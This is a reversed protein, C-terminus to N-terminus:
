EFISKLITNIVRPVSIKRDFKPNTIKDYIHVTLTQLVDQAIPPVIGSTMDVVITLDCIQDFDVWGQGLLVITPSKMRLNDTMIKRDKVTFNGEVDTIMLQGLRLAENLVDLLGKFIKFETLFGERIALSGKAELGKIDSLMGKSLMTMYFKGNIEEAKLNPIDNKLKHLDLGDINLALDFPIGAGNLDGSGVAHLKGDYVNADATLNSITGERQGVTIHLDNATYGLISVSASQLTADTTWRKWDPVPGKIAANVNLTGSPKLAEFAKKQEEPLLVAVDELRFTMTTNINLVPPDAPSLVANGSAGFAINLYKGTLENITLTDGNKRIDVKLQVDAGDLTTKIVPDKFDNLGGTLTYAKGLYTGTFNNWTLADPAGDLHGSIGTVSQNFTKSAVNVGALEATAKIKASSPDGALGEFQVQFSATGSVELGYQDMIQPFADKLKALNIRDAGARINLVPTKFNLVTGTAKIDTDLVQLVLSKITLEDTKFAADLSINKFPAFPFGNAQGDAVSVHGTYTLAQPDKLPYSAEVNMTINGTLSQQADLVVAANDAKIDTLMEISRENKMQIILPKLTFNGRVTQADMRIDTNKTTMTATIQLGNKDQRAKIDELAVDSKISQDKFSVDLGKLAANARVTLTNGGHDISLQVKEVTGAKWSLGEVPPLFRLYEAPRINKLDVDAHLDQNLPQYYGRTTVLGQTRPLSASVDFAIGKYSLSIKLNLNGLIETWNRGNSVDNIRVQGNSINIGTVTVAVPPGGAPPALLDSFNWEDVGRRIIHVFPHELNIFPITVKYQKAGPIVILGFSLRDAQLFVQDQSGKQYVKLKEVIFGKVWNFHLAEFEVKRKLFAEAQSTVFKKAQVPLIVRNVYVTLATLFFVVAAIIILPKQWKM